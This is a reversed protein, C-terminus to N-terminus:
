SGLGGGSNYFSMASTLTDREEFFLKKLPPRLSSSSAAVGKARSSDDENVDVFLLDRNFIPFVLRIQANQFIDDTSIPSGNPNTCTFSFDEDDENKECDNFVKTRCNVGVFSIFADAALVRTLGGIYRLNNDIHRPPM